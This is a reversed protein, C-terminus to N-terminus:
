ADKNCEQFGYETAIQNFRQGVALSRRTARVFERRDGAQAARLGQRLLALGRDSLAFLQRIVPRDEPPYDLARLKRIAVVSIALGKRVREILQKRNQPQPLAASAANLQACIADAKAIFDAREEALPPVPPEFDDPQDIATGDSGGMLTVGVGVLGGILLVALVILVARNQFLGTRTTGPAFVETRSPTLPTGSSYSSPHSATPTPGAGGQGGPSAMGPAPAGTQGVPSPLPQTSGPSPLPSTVAGAPPGIPAPPPTPTPAPPPGPSPVWQRAADDWRLWTGDPQQNYWVGDRQISEAM